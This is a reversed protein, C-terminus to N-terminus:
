DAAYLRFDTGTPLPLPKLWGPANGKALQRAFAGRDGPCVLVNTVGRKTLLARDGTELFDISDLIGDRNRHYPGAVVAQHTRYLIEPGVNLNGMVIGAPLDNLAKAVASVACRPNDRTEPPFVGVWILGTLVPGALLMAAIIHRRAPYAQGILRIVEVLLVAGFPAAWQAFRAHLLGAATFFVVVGVLPMWVLPLRNRQLALWLPLALLPTGLWLLTIGTPPILPSMERIKMFFERFVRPDMDGAPGRLVEPAFFLLGVLGLVGFGALVGFRRARGRDRGFGVVFGWVGCNVATALLQSLSVKDLERVRAWDAGREALVALGTMAFLGLALGELARLHRDEGTLLWLVALVGTVVIVIFQYETSVWMGFGAWLGAEIACRLRQHTGAQERVLGGFMLAACILLLTQHDPRGAMNYALMVPQLLAVVFLLPGVGRPMLPAFAWVIALGLLLHLVVPLAAGSWFLATHWDMGQWVHLPYAGAVILVDLPRTWNLVDGYPANMRDVTSDFWGQGNIWAEVRVLRMYTDSDPMNGHLIPTIGGLVLAAHVGLVLLLVFLWRIM